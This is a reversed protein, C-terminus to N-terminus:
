GLSAPPSINIDHVAGVVFYRKRGHEPFTFTFTRRGPKPAPLGVMHLEQLVRSSKVTESPHVAYRALSHESRWRPTSAPPM